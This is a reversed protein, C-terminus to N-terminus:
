SIGEIEIEKEVAINEIFNARCVLVYADERWESRMEKRILQGDPVQRQVQERLERLALAVALEAERRESQMEYPLYQVTRVGFPLRVNGPLEFYEVTNIIDCDGQFNKTNGFIKGEKKFFIWYKEMLPKNGYIKTEGVLPIEVLFRRETEALVRGTARTYRLGGVESEYLGGVLLDGEAVVDGVGVALNGRVDELREIRGSRSAVLNSAAFDEREIPEPLEERIEVHAVTGNMNISIWSIEDSLILMRNEIVEGRLERLPCGIELGCVSLQDIMESESLRENGEIRIGWLVRGSCFLIGCFLLFGILIGVRYRYHRVWAPIGGERVIEVSIGYARCGNVIKTATPDAARLFFSDESFSAKSYIYGHTRCLEVVEAARHREVRLIRYGLLLWFPHM